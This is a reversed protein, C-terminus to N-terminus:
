VEKEHKEYMLRLKRNEEEFFNANDKVQVMSKMLNMSFTANQDKIFDINIRFDDQIGQLEVKLKRVLNKLRWVEQEWTRRQKIKM